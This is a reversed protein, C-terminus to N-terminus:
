QGARRVRKMTGSFQLLGGTGITLFVERSQTAVAEVRSAHACRGGVGASMSRSRSRGPALVVHVAERQV